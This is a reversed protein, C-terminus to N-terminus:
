DLDGVRKQYSLYLYVVGMAASLILFPVWLLMTPDPSVLLRLIGSWSWLGGIWFSSRAMHKMNNRVAAWVGWACVPVVVLVNPFASWWPVAIFFTALQALGTLVAVVFLITRAPETRSYHLIRRPM